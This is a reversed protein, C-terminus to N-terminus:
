RVYAEITGNSGGAKSTRAIGAILAPDTVTNDAKVKAATVTSQVLTDGVAVAGTDASVNCISGREAFQGIGGSATAAEICILLNRRGATTDSRKVQGQTCTSDIYAIEAAAITTGSVNTWARMNGSMHGEIPDLNRRITGLWANFSQRMVIGTITDDDRLIPTTPGDGTPQIIVHDRGNATIHIGTATNGGGFSNDTRIGVFTNVDDNIRLGTAGNVTTSSDCGIFTNAEGADVDIGIGTFGSIRGGTFTNFNSGDTGTDAADKTLKLGNYCGSIRLGTVTNDISAIFSGTSQTDLKVGIAGSASFSDVYVRDISSQQVGILDLGVSASGTGQIRFDRLTLGTIASGSTKNGLTLAIGSGTYHLISAPGAGTVNLNSVNATVASSITYTKANLVVPLGSGLANSFATTDDGGLGGGYQEITAVIGNATLWAVVSAMATDYNGLVDKTIPTDLTPRNHWAGYSPTFTPLTVTL